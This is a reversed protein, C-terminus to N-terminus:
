SAAFREKIAEAYKIFINIREQLDTLTIDLAEDNHHIIKNRKTVTTQITEKHEKFTPCDEIKIGLLRLTRITKEINGSLMDSIDKEEKDLSYGKYDLHKIRKTEDPHICWMMTNHPINAEEITKKIKKLRLVSLEQLFAELYTCINILYSKVFFNLNKSFLEDPEESTIRKNSEQIINSLKVYQQNYKEFITEENM